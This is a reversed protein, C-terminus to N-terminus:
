KIGGKWKGTIAAEVCEETTGLLTNKVGATM